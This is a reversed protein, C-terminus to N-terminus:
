DLQPLNIGAVLGGDILIDVGTVFSAKDSVLFAVVEAVEEPRGHRGLPTKPLMSDCTAKSDNYYLPTMINGPSISIIRAGKKGYRTASRASYDRIFWKAGIYAMGGGKEGLQRLLELNTELFEPKLPDLQLAEKPIALGPVVDPASSAFNILVSGSQMLPFFAEMMYITGMASTRFVKEATSHAPAVGACNVVNAIAGLSEAKKALRQVDEQRTVDCLVGDVAIGRGRLDKLTDELKQESSSTIVLHYEKGLISAVAAGMGSSAGTIVSIKEM